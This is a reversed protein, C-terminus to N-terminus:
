GMLGRNAAVLGVRAVALFIVSVFLPSAIEASGTFVEEAGTLVDADVVGSATLGARVNIGFHVGGAISDFDDVVVVKEPDCVGDGLIPSRTPRDRFKLGEL